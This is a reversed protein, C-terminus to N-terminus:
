VDDDDPNVLVVIVAIIAAGIFIALVSFLKTQMAASRAGEIDGDNLREHVQQLKFCAIIGLPFFLVLAICCYYNLRLESGATLQPRGILVVTDAQVRGSNLQRTHGQHSPQRGSSSCNHCTQGPYPPPPNHSSQYPPPPASPTPPTDDQFTKYDTAM